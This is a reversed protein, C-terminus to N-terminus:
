EKVITPFLHQPLLKCLTLLRTLNLSPAMLLGMLFLNKGLQLPIWSSSPFFCLQISQADILPSVMHQQSSCFSWTTGWLVSVKKNPFQPNNYIEKPSTWGTTKLLLNFLPNVTWSLYKRIHLFLYHAPVRQKPSFCWTIQVQHQSLGYRASLWVAISDTQGHRFQWQQTETQALCSYCICPQAPSLSIM